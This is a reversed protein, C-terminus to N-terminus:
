PLARFRSNSKTTPALGVDLKFVTGCGEVCNASAGGLQTTGYLNGDGAQILGGGPMEGDTCSPGQACFSYLTTFIGTPTIKFITGGGHIGGSRTTGYFNGDTAQILGGSPASGDPCPQSQVCFRYITRPHGGTNMKFITGCGNDCNGSGGQETM